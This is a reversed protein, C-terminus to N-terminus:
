FIARSFECHARFTVAKYSSFICGFILFQLGNKEKIKDLHFSAFMGTATIWFYKQAVVLLAAMAVAAAAAVM